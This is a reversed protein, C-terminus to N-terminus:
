RSNSSHECQFAFLKVDIEPIPALFADAAGDSGPSSVITKSEVM